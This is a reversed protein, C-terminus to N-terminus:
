RFRRMVLFSTVFIGAGAFAMLAIAHRYVRQTQPPTSRLNDQCQACGQAHIAPTLLICAAAIALVTSLHPHNLSPSPLLAASPEEVSVQQPSALPLPNALFSHARRPRLRHFTRCPQISKTPPRRAPNPPNPRSASSSPRRLRTAGLSIRGSSRILPLPKRVLNRTVASHSPIKPQLKRTTRPLSARMNKM